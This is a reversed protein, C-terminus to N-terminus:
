REKLKFTERADLYIMSRRLLWLWLGGALFLVGSNLLARSIARGYGTADTSYGSSYGPWRLEELATYPNWLASLNRYNTTDPPPLPWFKRVFFYISEYLSGIPARLADFFIWLGLMGVLLTVATAIMATATTKCFRSVLLAWSGACWASAAIVCLVALMQSPAVSAAYGEGTPLWSSYDICLAMVLLAPLAYYFCTLLPAGIKGGIIARRSLLSLYIGEWNGSELERSFGRAGLFASAGVAGYFLMPCIAWFTVPRVKPDGLIQFLLIILEGAAVAFLLARLVGILFSGRRWRFAGRVERQLIPNSFRIFKEVPLDWLLAEQASDKLEPKAARLKKREELREKWGDSWKRQSPSFEPFPKQVKRAALCLFALGFALQVAFAITWIPIQAPWLGAIASSPRVATADALTWAAACPHTWFFLAYFFEWVDSPTRYRAYDLCYISACSWAIVAVLSLTLAHMARRAHALFFLGLSAGFFITVLQLAIALVFDRPEVGGMVFCIAMVPTSALVILSAFALASFLKGRVIQGARLPSLQLSEFLGREREGAISSATLIPSLVLWAGTQLMALSSFLQHGLYRAVSRVDADEPQSQNAYILAMIAALLATWAFAFAFSQWRRWRARVEREIIPNM